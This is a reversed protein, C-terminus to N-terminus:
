EVGGVTREIEGILDSADNFDEEDGDSSEAIIDNATTLYHSATTLLRKLDSVKVLLDDVRQKLADREARTEAQLKALTFADLLAADREAIIKDVIREDFPKTM